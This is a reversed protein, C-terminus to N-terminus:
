ECVESSFRRQGAEAEVGEERVAEGAEVVAGFHRESGAQLHDPEHQAVRPDPAAQLHRVHERHM